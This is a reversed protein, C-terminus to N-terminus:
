LVRNRRRQLIPPYRTRGNGAVIERESSRWTDEDEEEGPL